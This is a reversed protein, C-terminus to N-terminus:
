FILLYFDKKFKSIIVCSVIISLIRREKKKKIAQLQFKKIQALTTIYILLILNLFFCACTMKLQKIKKIFFFFKM